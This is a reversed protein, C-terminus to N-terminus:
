NSIKDKVKDVFKAIFTPKSIEEDPNGLIYAYPELGDIAGFIEKLIAVLPIFLVMGVVGWISGGVILAILTILPNLSVNNGVIKPTLFNGEVAQIVVFSGLVAVPYFLSDKTVFAFLIPLASGIFPGVYPIINLSAAIAAFLMAHKIGLATLAISYLVFLICMVYFVGTIYKQVVKRIRPVLVRIGTPEGNESGGDKFLRYLFEKLHERYMLILAIYIPVIIVVSFSGLFSSLSTFIEGMHSQIFKIGKDVSLNNLKTSLVDPLKEKLNAFKAVIQDMDSAFRQVQSGLLTLLGALVIIAVLVSLISSVVQPIGIRELLNALPTLLFAIFFAITLPVIIGQGVIM